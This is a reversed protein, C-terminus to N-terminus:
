ATAEEAHLIRAALWEWESQHWAPLGRIWTGCDAEPPRCGGGECIVVTSDMGEVNRVRLTQQGGVPNDATRGGCWPCLAKIIQGDSILGLTEHAREILDKARHEVFAIIQPDTLSTSAENLLRRILVLAPRPDALASMAPRNIPRWVSRCVRDALIEAAALIEVLESMVDLDLPAPSEGPAIADRELREAKAERAIENRREMTLAPTKWPRDVGQELCSALQMVADELDTVADRAYDIPTKSTM